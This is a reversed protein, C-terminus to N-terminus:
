YEGSEPLIDRRVRIDKYRGDDSSTYDNRLEGLEEDLRIVDDVSDIGLMEFIKIASISKSGDIYGSQSTPIDIDNQVYVECRKSNGIDLNGVGILGIGAQLCMKILKDDIVDTHTCLYSSWGDIEYRVAQGVGHKLKRISDAGKCEIAIMKSPVAVDIRYVDCGEKSVCYEVKVGDYKPDNARNFISELATKLQKQIVSENFKNKNEM